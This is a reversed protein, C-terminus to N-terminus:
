IAGSTTRVESPGIGLITAKRIQEAACVESPGIILHLSLFAMIIPQPHHNLAIKTNPKLRPWALWFSPSLQAWM